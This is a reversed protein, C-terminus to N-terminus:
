LADKALDNFGLSKLVVYLSRERSASFVKKVRNLAAKKEKRDKQFYIPTPKKELYDAARSVDYEVKKLAELTYEKLYKLYLQQDM